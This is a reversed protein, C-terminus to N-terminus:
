HSLKWDPYNQDANLWSLMFIKSDNIKCFNSNSFFILYVHFGYKNSIHINIQINHTNIKNKSM